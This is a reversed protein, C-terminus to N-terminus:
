RCFTFEEDIFFKRSSMLFSIEGIAVLREPTPFIFQTERQASSSWSCSLLAFATRLVTRRSMPCCDSSSVKSVPCSTKRKLCFGRWLLVNDDCNHNWVVTNDRNPRLAFTSILPVFFCAFSMNGRHEPHVTRFLTAECLTAEISYIVSQINVRIINVFLSLGEARGPDFRTSLSTLKFVINSNSVKHIPTTSRSTKYYSVALSNSGTTFSVKAALISCLHVLM